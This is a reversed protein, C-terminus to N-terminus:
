KVITIIIDYDCDEQVSIFRYKKNEWMKIHPNNKSLKKDLEALTVSGCNDEGMRVIKKIKNGVIASLLFDQPATM